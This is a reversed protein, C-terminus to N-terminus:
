GRSSLLVSDRGGRLCFFALDWYSVGFALCLLQALGVGFWLMQRGLGVLCKRQWQGFLCRRSGLLFSRCRLENWIVFLQVLGINFLFTTVVHARCFCKGAAASALFQSFGVPFLDSLVVEVFFQALGVNFM